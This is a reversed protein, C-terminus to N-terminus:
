GLALIFGDFGDIAMGFVIPVRLAMLFLMAGLGLMGLVFPDM